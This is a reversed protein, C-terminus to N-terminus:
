YITNNTVDTYM